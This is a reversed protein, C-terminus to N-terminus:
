RERSLILSWGLPHESTRPAGPCPQVGQYPPSRVSCTRSTCLGQFVGPESLAARSGSRCGSTGRIGTDWVLRVSVVVSLRSVGLMRGTVQRTASLLEAGDQGVDPIGPELDGLAPEPVFDQPCGPPAWLNGPSLISLLERPLDGAAAGSGPCLTCPVGELRRGRHNELLSELPHLSALLLMGARPPCWLWASGGEEDVM